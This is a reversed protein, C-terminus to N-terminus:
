WVHGGVLLLMVGALSTLAGLLRPPLVPAGMQEYYLQEERASKPQWRQPTGPKGAFLSYIDM